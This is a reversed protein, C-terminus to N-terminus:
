HKEHESEIVLLTVDDRRNQLTAVEGAIAEIRQRVPLHIWRNILSKVHKLGGLNGRKLFGEALGDSYIYFTGHKISIVHEPYAVEHLIGLPPAEAPFTKYKGDHSRFLPPLHGANAFLVQQNSPDYIGGVMTVFMGRTTKESLENNIIELLKGPSNMRKGLCHYLSSAKAGMLAATIGKGAVDGLAFGIRGDKLHFYDYFDGSVEQVPLNMGVVPMKKHFPGPLMSKQITRALELEKQFREQEVLLDAMQANHIALSASSALVPMLNVDQQTFLGDGNQKNIVEIAGFTMDRVKLPACLVSRTVFGTKNDVISCFDPHERANTVTQLSGTAVTKGVIGQHVPLEVGVIDVPGACAYCSLKRGGEELLFVSAAEANLYHRIGETCIRLTQGIDLSSALEQSIEALMDVGAKLSEDQGSLLACLAKVWEM